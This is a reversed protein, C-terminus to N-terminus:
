IAIHSRKTAAHQIRLVGADNLFKENVYSKHMHINSLANLMGKKDPMGSADLKGGNWVTSQTTSAAAPVRHPWRGQPDEESRVEEGSPCLRLALPHKSEPRRVWASGGPPATGARAPFAQSSHPRRWGKRPLCWEAPSPIARHHPTKGEVRFSKTSKPAPGLFLQYSKKSVPASVSCDLM